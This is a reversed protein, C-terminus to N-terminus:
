FLKFDSLVYACVRLYPIALALEKGLFFDVFQVLLVTGPPTMWGLFRKGIINLILSPSIPLIPPLEIVVSVLRDLVLMLIFNRKLWSSITLVIWETLCPPHSEHDSIFAVGPEDSLRVSLMYPTEGPLVERACGWSRVPFCGPEIVDYPYVFDMIILPERPRPVCELLHDLIPM